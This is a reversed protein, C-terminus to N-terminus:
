ALVSQANHLLGLAHASFQLRLLVESSRAFIWPLVDCTLKVPGTELGNLKKFPGDNLLILFRSTRYYASCFIDIPGGMRNLLSFSADARVDSVRRWAKLAPPPSPVFRTQPTCALPM